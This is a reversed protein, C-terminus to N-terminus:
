TSASEVRVSADIITAIAARDNASPTRGIKSFYREVNAKADAARRADGAESDAAREVTAALMLQEVHELEVEIKAIRRRLPESLAEPAPPLGGKLRQRVARTGRVIHEHWEAVAEALSEVDEAGLAGRGSAGIWCCFLVINVDLQHADQLVLCAPAVGEKGYVELSFDWFPHDPFDM